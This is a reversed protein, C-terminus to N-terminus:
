LTSLFLMSVYRLGLSQQFTPRFHRDVVQVQIQHERLNDPLSDGEHPQQTRLEHRQHDDDSRLGDLDDAAAVGAAHLGGDASPLIDVHEDLRLTQDRVRCCGVVPM